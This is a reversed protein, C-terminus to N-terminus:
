ATFQTVKAIIKEPSNKKTAKRVQQPLPASQPLMNENRSSKFLDECLANQQGHRPYHCVWPGSLKVSYYIWNGHKDQLMVNRVSTFVSSLM